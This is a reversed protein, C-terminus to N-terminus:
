CTDFDKGVSGCSLTIEVGAPAAPAAPAAAPKTSEAPKPAPEDASKKKCGGVVCLSITLLVTGSTMRPAGEKNQRAWEGCGTGETKCGAQAHASVRYAPAMPCPTDTILQRLM